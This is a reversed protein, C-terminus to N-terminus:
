TVATDPLGGIVPAGPLGEEIVLRGARHARQGHRGGVGVDDVDATALTQLSGIEGGAVANVFRGVAALGPVMEPQPVALLEARDEDIWVVGVPDEHRDKA